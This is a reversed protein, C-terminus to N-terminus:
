GSREMKNKKEIGDEIYKQGIENPVTVVVGHQGNPHEWLSQIIGGKITAFTSKDEDSTLPGSLTPALIEIFNPLASVFKDKDDKMVHEVFGAGEQGFISTYQKAM